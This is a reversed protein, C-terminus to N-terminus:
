ILSSFAKMKKLCETDWFDWLSKELSLGTVKVLASDSFRFYTCESSSPSYAMVGGGELEITAIDFSMFTVLEDLKHSSGDKFSSILHNLNAILIGKQMYISLCNASISAFSIKSEFKFSRSDITVLSYTQSLSHALSEPNVEHLIFKANIDMGKLKNYLIFFRSLLVVDQDDGRM